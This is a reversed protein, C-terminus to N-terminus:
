FGCMGALSFILRFYSLIFNLHDHLLFTSNNMVSMDLDTNFNTSDPQLTIQAISDRKRMYFAYYDTQKTRLVGSVQLNMSLMYGLTGITSVYSLSPTASSSRQRVELVFDCIRTYIPPTTPNPPTSGGKSGAAAAGSSTNYFCPASNETMVSLIQQTFTAGIYV